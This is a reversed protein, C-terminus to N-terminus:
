EKWGINGIDLRALSSNRSFSGYKMDRTVSWSSKLKHVENKGGKVVKLGKFNMKGDNEAKKYRAKCITKRRM